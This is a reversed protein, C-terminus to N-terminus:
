IPFLGRMSASYCLLSVNPLPTQILGIFYSSVTPLYKNLHIFSMLEEVHEDEQLLPLTAGMSECLGSAQHWSVITQHGHSPFFSVFVISELSANHEAAFSFNLCFDVKRNSPLFCKAPSLDSLQQFAPFIQHTFSLFLDGNVDSTNRVRLRFQLPFHPMPVTGYKSLQLISFTNRTTVIQQVCCKRSKQPNQRTRCFAKNGSFAESSLCFKERGGSIFIEIQSPSIAGKNTKSINLTLVLAKLNRLFNQFKIVSAIPPFLCKLSLTPSNTGNSKGQTASVQYIVNTHADIGGGWEAEFRFVLDQQLFPSKYSLSYSVSKNVLYFLWISELTVCSKTLSPQRNCASFVTNICTGAKRWPTISLVTGWATAERPYVLDIFPSKSRFDFNVIHGKELVSSPYFSVLCPSTGAPLYNYVNIFSFNRMQRELVVCSNSQKDNFSLKIGTKLSSYAGVGKLVELQTVQAYKSMHAIRPSLINTKLLFSIECVDVKIVDCKSISVLLKVDITVYEKYFYVIVSLESLTSHFYKFGKCSSVTEDCHEDSENTINGVNESTVFGKYMCGEFGKQSHHFRLISVNLHYLPHATLLTIFVSNNTPQPFTLQSSKSINLTNTHLIQLSLFNIQSSLFHRQMESYVVCQFSSSVFNSSIYMNSRHGPGDLIFMKNRTNGKETFKIRQSKLMKFHHLHINKEQSIYRVSFYTESQGKSALINYINDRDLYSVFAKMLFVAFLDKCLTFNAKSKPPFLDFNSHYGCFLLEKGKSAIVQRCTHTEMSVFLGGRNCYKKNGYASTLHLYNFSINMRLRPHMEVKWIIQGYLSITHRFYIFIFGSARELVTTRLSKSDNQNCFIKMAYKFFGAMHAKHQKIREAILMNEYRTRKATLIISLMKQMHMHHTRSYNTPKISGFVIERLINDAQMFPFWLQFSTLFVSQLLMVM